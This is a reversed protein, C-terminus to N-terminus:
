KLRILFHIKVEFFDVSWLWLGLTGNGSLDVERRGVPKEEGEWQRRGRGCGCGCSM